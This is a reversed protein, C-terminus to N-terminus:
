TKVDDINIDIHLFSPQSSSSVDIKMRSTLLLLLMRWARMSTPM